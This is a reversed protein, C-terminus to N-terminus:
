KSDKADAPPPPEKDWPLQPKVDAQGQEEEENAKTSDFCKYYVAPDSEKGACDLIPKLDDLHGYYRYSTIGYRFEGTPDAGYRDPNESKLRPEVELIADRMATGPTYNDPLQDFPGDFYDNLMTHGVFDGILIRRNMLKDKYFAFSTRKGVTLAPSFDSTDYQDVLPGENLVYLFTKATKNFLLFFQVGSEDWSPGLYVEDSRIQEPAPKLSSLDPLVFEVKRGNLEITYDFKNLQTVKV